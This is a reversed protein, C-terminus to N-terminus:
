FASPSCLSFVLHTDLIITPNVHMFWKKGKMNRKKSM